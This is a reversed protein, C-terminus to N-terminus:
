GLCKQVRRLLDKMDIPKRVVDAVGLSAAWGSNANGLATTIIIPVATWRFAREKLFHWGDMGPMFMNLIILDPQPYDRLYALAERGSAALAVRYGHASLVEGFGTRTVDDDEVVLITQLATAPAM